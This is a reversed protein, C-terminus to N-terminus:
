ASTEACPMKTPISQEYEFLNHPDYKAKTEILRELNDGFYNQLFDKNGRIPYNQYRNGNSMAEGIEGFKKLWNLSAERHTDFTWFVWTFMDLSANRHFYAMDDSKPENIAGGYLELAIFITKDPATLFHDVMERWREASHCEAIIRSDVMPKTNMSVAPMEMHPETATMLLQENVKLYHGHNWIDVQTKRDKVHDLLPGLAAECEAETGDYLGRLSICPEQGDPKEPTPLYMLLAQMGMKPPGDYTYQAQVTELVRCATQIDDEHKLPFRLGFAWVKKLPVLDYEIETLIGFQNGTGGRVAWFLDANEDKNARLLTGDATVMRIGVVHDCNMGFLSSTFGYGGGQMYGAVCVTECGGGPVHLKYHHLMRNLTRFNTGPGVKARRTDPDILVHGMRSTDIVIQDNVSYGATSHGGSRTTVKLRQKRAFKLGAIVDTECTAHIILQPYNQYTHMFVMRDDNYGPYGPQQVDGALKEQLEGLAEGTYSLLGTERHKDEIWPGSKNHKKRFTTM